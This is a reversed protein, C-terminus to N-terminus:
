RPRAAVHDGEFTWALNDWELEDSPADQGSWVRAGDATREYAFPARRYPDDPMGGLPALSEPWAGERQRHELLAMAVRALRRIAASRAHAEFAAAATRSFLSAVAASVGDEGGATRLRAAAQPADEPRGSLAIASACVDLYRNAGRYLFPQSFPSGELPLDGSDLAPLERGSRIADMLWIVFVREQAFAERPPGSERCARALPPDVLRRFLAADFGPQRAASRLVEVATSAVAERVLYGILMPVRASEGLDLLLIATRAARETRGEEDVDTQVRWLLHRGATGLWAIDDSRYGPGEGWRRDVHWGPRSPAQEVLAFAPALSALHARMREREEPSATEDDFWDPAGERRQDFLRAAEQLLLAANEADPVPPEALDEFRVPQGDARLAAVRAEFERRSASAALYLGIALCLAIAVVVLVARWM